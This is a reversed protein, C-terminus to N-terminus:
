GPSSIWGVKEKYGIFKTAKQNIFGNLKFSTLLAATTSIILTAMLQIVNKTM